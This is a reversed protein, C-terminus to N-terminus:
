SHKKKLGLSRSEFRCKGSELSVNVAMVGNDITAMVLTKGDTTFAMKYSPLNESRLCEAVPGKRDIRYLWMQNTNSLAVLSADQSM